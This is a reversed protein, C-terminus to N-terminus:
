IFVMSDVNGGCKSSMDTRNGGYDSNGDCEAWNSEFLSMSFSDLGM